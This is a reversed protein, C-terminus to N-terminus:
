KTLLVFHSSAGSHRTSASCASPNSPPPSATSTTSSVAIGFFPVRETPTAGCYQPSSPLCVFQWDSTESV